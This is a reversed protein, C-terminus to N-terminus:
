RECQTLLLAFVFASFPNVGLRQSQIQAVMSVINFKSPSKSMSAFAPTLDSCLM